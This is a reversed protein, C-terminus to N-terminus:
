GRGTATFWLYKRLTIYKYANSELESNKQQPGLTVIAASAADRKKALDVKRQMTSINERRQSDSLRALEASLGKGLNGKQSQADARAQNEALGLDDRRRTYRANIVSRESPSLASPASVQAKRKESALWSELREAKVVGVNPVRVQNGSQLAILAIRSQGNSIYRVGVFDAATVVGANRLNQLLKPGFGEIKATELRASGLKQRIHAAQARELTATLDSQHDQDIKSRERALESLRKQLNRDIQSLDFDHRQQLSDIKSKHAENRKKEDKELRDLNAELDKHKRQENKLATRLESARARAPRAAALEPRRQYGLSTTLLWLMFIGIAASITVAPLGGIVVLLLSVIATVPLALSLIACTATRGSFRVPDRTPVSPLHPAMWAPHGGTVNSPVVSPALGPNVTDATSGLKVPELRPIETASQTTMELVRRTLERVQPVSSDLLTLFRDSSAPNKFDDEALLLYEGGPQHLQHWLTPDQGVAVLSMYIVWSSFRDITEDFEGERSPVQYNRHGKESAPTGSLSPVFMGDYDVLKLADDQAVLLNGHQLDGHAIGDDALVSVLRGFRRSIEAIRAPEKINQDIWSTLVTGTVWDMKLIPYWAANLRIGRPQYEFGVKWSASVAALHQSVEKYRFEQDPVEKTFCKIAYRKNADASTLSFVCASNGSIPRPRQLIDLEVTCSRLSEEAFCLQPNQLAEVYDSGSPYLPETM